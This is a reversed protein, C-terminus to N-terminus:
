GARLYIGASEVTAVRRYGGARVAEDWRAYPEHRAGFAPRVRAPGAAKVNGEVM